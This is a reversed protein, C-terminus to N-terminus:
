ATAIDKRCLVVLGISWTVVAILLLSAIAPVPWTGSRVVDVPRLYGLLSLFQIRKLPEIFPELFNLVSSLFVIGVIVGVAVSRRNLICGIMLSLCAIALNLFLFNSAAIFFPYIQVSEMNEFLMTGIWIGLLPSYSLLALVIACALSVSHFIEARSVPLAYLVDATGQEIEGVTVRTAMSIITAWSLLLVIGHTFCVSFLIDISVEGGSVDIGLSMEFIKKVFPFKSVFNLLETGMNLMAWVFVVSFGVLGIAALLTQLWSDELTKRFIGLNFM